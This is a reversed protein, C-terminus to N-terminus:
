HKTHKYDLFFRKTEQSDEIIPFWENPINCQKQLLKRIPYCKKEDYNNICSIYSIFIMECYKKNEM